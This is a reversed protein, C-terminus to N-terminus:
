AKIQNPRQLNIFHNILIGTPWLDTSLIQAENEKPIGLKFSSRTKDRKTAMKQCICGAELQNRTLFEMINNVDTKPDFGSVFIWTKEEAARLVTENKNTGQLPTPRRNQTEKDALTRKKPKKRVETWPASSHETQEKPDNKSDDTIDIKKEVTTNVNKHTKRETNVHTRTPTPSVQKHVEEVGPSVEAKKNASACPRRLDPAIQEIALSNHGTKVTTKQPTAASAGTKKASEMHEQRIKGVSELKEELLRKNEELLKNKDTIEKILQRLLRVEEAENTHESKSTIDGTCNDCCILRTEDIIVVKGGFDREACSKHFAKGCNVCVRSHFVKTKCCEFRMKKDSVNKSKNPTAM